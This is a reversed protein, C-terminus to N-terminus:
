RPPVALFLSLSLSLSLPPGISESDRSGPGGLGGWLMLRFAYKSTLRNWRDGFRLFLPRRDRQRVTAGPHRPRPPLASGGPRAHVGGFSEFSHLTLSSHSSLLYLCVSGIFLSVFAEFGRLGM